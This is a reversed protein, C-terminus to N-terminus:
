IKTPLRMPGAAEILAELRARATGEKGAHFGATIVIAAKAGKERLDRVVPPVADPPVAIVGLDPAVPLSAIDPWALVGGVSGYKPNVPLVPGHFGARMMNEALVGGVTAPRTSAGILAISKPTFLADFDRISM